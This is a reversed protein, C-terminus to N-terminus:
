QHTGVPAAHYGLSGLLGGASIISTGYTMIKGCIDTDVECVGDKSAAVVALLGM